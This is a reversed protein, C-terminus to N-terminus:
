KGIDQHNSKLTINISKVIMELMFEIFPTSEGLATSDELAKYYAEQHERVISETPFWSFLQNYSRLIM